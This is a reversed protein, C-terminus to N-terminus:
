LFNHENMNILYPPAVVIVVFSAIIIVIITVTVIANTIIIIDLSSLAFVTIRKSCICNNKQLLDM